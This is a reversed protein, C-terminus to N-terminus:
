RFLTCARFTPRTRPQGATSSCRSITSACRPTAPSCAFSNPALRRDSEPATPPTRPVATRRAFMAVEATACCPRTTPAMRPASHHRDHRRSISRCGTPNCPLPQGHARTDARRPRRRRCPDAVRAFVSSTAASDRSTATSASTSAWAAPSLSSSRTLGGLIDDDVDFHDLDAAPVGHTATATQRRARDARVSGPNEDRRLLPRACRCGFALKDLMSRRREEARVQALRQVPVAPHAHATHARAEHQQSAVICSSLTLLALTSLAEQRLTRAITTTGVPQQVAALGSVLAGNVTFSVM